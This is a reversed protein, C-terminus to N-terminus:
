PEGIQVSRVIVVVRGPDETEERLRGLGQGMDEAHAFM